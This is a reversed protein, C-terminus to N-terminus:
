SSLPLSIMRFVPFVMIHTTSSPSLNVKRQDNLLGGYRFGGFVGVKASQSFTRQLRKRCLGAIKERGSILSRSSRSM